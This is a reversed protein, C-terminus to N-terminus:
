WRPVGESPMTSAPEAVLTAVTTWASPLITTPPWDAEPKM